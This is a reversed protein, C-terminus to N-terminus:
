KQEFNTCNDYFGRFKELECEPYTLYDLRVNRLAKFLRQKEAANNQTLNELRKRADKRASNEQYSCTCTASIYNNENAHSIITNVDALCLPRIVTVPYKQYKLKPPMTSLEGRNLANM